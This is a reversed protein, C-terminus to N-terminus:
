ALVGNELNDAFKVKGITSCARKTKGSDSYTWNVQVMALGTAFGLTEGQDLFVSVTNGDVTLEDGSKRLSHGFKDAFTVYVNQAEGLDVAEPLTLTFTPTIGKYM